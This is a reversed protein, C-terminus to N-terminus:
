FRNSMLESRPGPKSSAQLYAHKKMKVASGSLFSLKIEHVSFFMKFVLMLIKHNGTQLQRQNGPLRPIARYPANNYLVPLYDGPTNFPYPFLIVDSEM